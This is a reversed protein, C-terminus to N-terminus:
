DRAGADTIDPSPINTPWKRASRRISRGPRLKGELERLTEATAVPACLAATAMQLADAMIADVRSTRAGKEKLKDATNIADIIIASVLRQRERYAAESLGSIRCLREAIERPSPYLIVPLPSGYHMVSALFGAYSPRGKRNRQEFIPSFLAYILTLVDESLGAADAQRLIEQRREELEMIRHEYIARVLGEKSGFYYTVVGNNDSGIADGIQRLSVNEVGHSSFLEEAAEILSLRTAEGRRDRRKDSM